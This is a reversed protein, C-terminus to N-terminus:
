EDIVTNKDQDIILYKDMPIKFSETNVEDHDVLKKDTAIMVSELRDLASELSETKYLQRLASHISGRVVFLSRDTDHNQIVQVIVRHLGGSIHAGRYFSTVTYHRSNEVELPYWGPVTSSINVPTM